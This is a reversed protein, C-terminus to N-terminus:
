FSNEHHVWKLYEQYERIYDSESYIDSAAVCLVSNKAASTFERWLGGDLVILKEPSDLLVSEKVFGDDFTVHIAGWPCFLVQKLNKHAHFGRMTGKELGYIYYVRKIAFDIEKGFEFFSLNGQGDGIVPALLVKVGKM